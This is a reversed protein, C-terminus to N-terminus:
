LIGKTFSLGVKVTHKDLTTLFRDYYGKGYGIRNGYLDFAIGPVVVVDIDELPYREKYLPEKINYKGAKLPINKKYIVPYLQEDEICPLLVIKNQELATSIIKDTDPENNIAMYLMISTSQKYLESQLFLSQLRESMKKYSQPSIAKRYQLIKSRITSKKNM